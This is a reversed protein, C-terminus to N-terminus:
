EGNGGRDPLCGLIVCGVLVVAALAAVAPSNVTKAYESATGRFYAIQSMAYGGALLLTAAAMAAYRIANM